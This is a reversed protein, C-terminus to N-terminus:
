RWSFCDSKELGELFFKLKRSKIAARKVNKLRPLLWKLVAKDSGGFDKKYWQFLPPLYLTQTRGDFHVNEALFLSVCKDVSFPLAATFVGYNTKM